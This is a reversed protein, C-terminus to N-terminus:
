LIHTNNKSKTFKINSQVIYGIEFNTKTFVVYIHLVIILTEWQCSKKFHLFYLKNTKLCQQKCYELALWWITIIHHHICVKNEDYAFNTHKQFRFLKIRM